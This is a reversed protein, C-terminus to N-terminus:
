HLSPVKPPSMSRPTVMFGDKPEREKMTPMTATTSICYRRGCVAAALSQYDRPKAAFYLKECFVGLPQGCCDWQDSSPTLLCFTCVLRRLVPSDVCPVSFWHIVVQTFSCSDLEVAILHLGNRLSMWGADTVGLNM